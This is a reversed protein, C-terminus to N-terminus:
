RALISQYLELQRKATKEASYKRSEKQANVSLKKALRFNGLVRGIAQAFEAADDDTLFGTEGDRVIDGPGLADVAIVPTGAAMAEMIVIGQTDTLSPFVFADVAGFLPNTKEKPLFGIFTVQRDLGLRETLQEYKRRQPGDGVLLLHVDRREQNLISLATLLMKINKEDALRGVYLLVRREKPIGFAGHLDPHSKQFQALYIGTPNVEIRTTVGYSQLIERMSPSPTIVLDVRNCYTRSLWRMLNPGFPLLRAYTKVYEVIMTHYTTVIPLGLRRATDLGTWGMVAQHQTHILDLGLRGIQRFDRSLWPLPLPYDPHVPISPVRVVDKEREAVRGTPAFVTYQVGLEALEKKFTDISVVVGNIVPHYVETFVGVKM